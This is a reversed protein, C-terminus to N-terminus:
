HGAAPAPRRGRSRGAPAPAPAPPPPPPIAPPPPTAPAPQAMSAPPAPPGTPAATPPGTTSGAELRPPLLTTSAVEKGNLQSMLLDVAIDSLEITPLAVHSVGSWSQEAVDSPSIAVISLEGPVELGKDRAWQRVEPLAAENHVILATPRSAWLQELTGWVLGPATALGVTRSAPGNPQGGAEQSGGPAPRSPKAQPCASTAITLGRRSAAMRVGELTHEAYGYHERYVEEPEGLFAISEHGLGALHEVCLEGAAHFDFDVCVLGESNLPVGILVTPLGLDRLLGLRSDELQVDLVVLGDALGWAARRLAEPGERETVVLVDQDYDRARAAVEMLFEMMVRYMTEARIPLVLAIVSSRSTALARASAHPRYGLEAISKRVREAVAPSIPRKGSMVYSVTSQSVGARRAVDLITVM